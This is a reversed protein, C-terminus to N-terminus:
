SVMEQIKRGMVTIPNEMGLKGKEEMMRVGINEADETSFQIQALRFLESEERAVHREIVSRLQRVKDLWDDSRASSTQIDILLHEIEHHEEFSTELLVEENTKQRLPKYLVEEEAKSHMVLETRMFSFLDKRREPDYIKEIANLVNIVIRHDAKLIDYISTYDMFEEEDCCPLSSILIRHSLCRGFPLSDAMLM